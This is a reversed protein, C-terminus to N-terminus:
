GFNQIIILVGARQPKRIRQILRAITASDKGSRREIVTVSVQPTEHELLRGSPWKVEHGVEADRFPGGSRSVPLNSKADGYLLRAPAKLTQDM